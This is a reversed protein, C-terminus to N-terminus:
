KALSVSVTTTEALAKAEAIEKQSLPVGRQSLIDLAYEAKAKNMKILDNWGDALAKFDEKASTYADDNDRQKKLAGAEFTSAVVTAKLEETTMGNAADVFSQPVDKPATSKKRGRPMNM